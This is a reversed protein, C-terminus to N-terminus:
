APQGFCFCYGDRVDMVDWERVFFLRYRKGGHEQAHIPGSRAGIGEFETHLAEVGSVSFYCSGAQGPDHDPDEVLGIEADDRALKAATATLRVLAFGLVSEYFKVAAGVDRVQLKDPDEDSIPHVAKFSVM